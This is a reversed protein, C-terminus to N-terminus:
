LYLGDLEFYKRWLNFYKMGMERVDYIVESKTYLDYGNFEKLLSLMERDRNNLFRDYVEDKHHLYLSHYRICYLIEDPLSNGNIGNKLVQYLYEDHGYSIFMNDLGCHKEYNGMESLPRMLNNFEPLVIEDPIRVGVIFTDGVIGWQNKMSQGNKEDNQLYLLKGFDHIFLGLVFWDPKGDKQAQEASQFAHQINPLNCDPDSLDIFANLKELIEKFSLYFSPVAYKERMEKVYNPSQYIRAMKYNERVNENVNDYNRYEM